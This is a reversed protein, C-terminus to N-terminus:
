GKKRSSEDVARRMAETEQKIQEISQTMDAQLKTVVSRKFQEMSAEVDKQLKQLSAQNEEFQNKLNDLEYRLAADGGSSKEEEPKYFLLLGLVGILTFELILAFIIFARDDDGIIRIGRLGIVFILGAAGLYALGQANNEYNRVIEYIMWYSFPHKKAQDKEEENEEKLMKRRKDVDHWESLVHLSDHFSGFVPPLIKSLLGVLRGKMGGFREMALVVVAILDVAGITIAGYKALIKLGLVISENTM